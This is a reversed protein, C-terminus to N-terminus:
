CVNPHAIKRALLIERRFRHLASENAAQELRVTKLAVRTGLVVDVAEYVEGMGGQGLMRVIRFREELLAGAELQQRAAPSAGLRETEHIPPSPNLETPADASELREPQM